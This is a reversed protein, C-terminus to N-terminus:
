LLVCIGWAALATLALRRASLRLDNLNRQVQECGQDVTYYRGAYPANARALEFDDEMGDQLEVSLYVGYLDESEPGWAGAMQAKKPLFVTDPTFAYSGLSWYDSLRYIGVIEYEEAPAYAQETKMMGIVPWKLQGTLTTYIDTSPNYPGMDAGCLFQSMTVRDGVALGRKAAVADSIVLVRAGQEYEEQTFSRGEVVAAENKVFMYMTELRETGIVPLSHLHKRLAEAYDTWVPHTALFEDLDGEVLQAAPFDYDAHSRDTEFDADGHVTWLGTEDEAAAGVALVPAFVDGIRSNKLPRPYSDRMTYFQGSLICRQGPELIGGPAGTEAADEFPLYVSLYYLYAGDVDNPDTAIMAQEFEPHLCLVREVGILTGGTFDDRTLVTGAVLCRRYSQPDMVSRFSESRRLGLVSEFEEAYGGTLSHIRVAKVSPQEELWSLEAQSLTREEVTWTTGVVTTHGRYEYTGKVARDTRVAIATHKKDVTGALKRAGLWLSVGATLFATMLITLALWLATTGPRRLLRNKVTM